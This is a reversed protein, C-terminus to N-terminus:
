QVTLTASVGPRIKGDPNDFIAKMRALGSAADVVPSVFCIKGSVTQGGDVTLQVPEDLQLKAATVGDVHGIFYCQSTDVLRVFPSYPAVVSGPKLSIDTITGSFPAILLRNTLSQAASEYQATAVHYEAEAKDLDQQSVSKTNQFLQLTSEYVKQNQDMVAKTRTVEIAELNKDLELIVDGKKVSDGEQFFETHIIGADPFGLAVDNLPATIGTVQITDAARAIFNVLCLPVALLLAYYYKKQFM